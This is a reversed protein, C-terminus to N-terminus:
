ACHLDMIDIGFGCFGVGFLEQYVLGVTFVGQFLVWAQQEYEYEYVLTIVM